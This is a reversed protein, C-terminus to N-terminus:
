TTIETDQDLKPARVKTKTTIRYGFDLILEIGNLWKLWPNKSNLHTWLQEM